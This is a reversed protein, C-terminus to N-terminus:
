ASGSDPMRVARRATAPAQATLVGLLETDAVAYRVLHRTLAEVVPWAAQLRRRAQEILLDIRAIDGSWTAPPEVDGYLYAVPILTPTALISEHDAVARLQPMLRRWPTVLGRHELWLEDAVQGALLGIVFEPVPLAPVPDALQTHGAANPEGEYLPRPDDAYVRVEEVPVGALSYLVAHGAEHVAALEYVQEPTLGDRFRRENAVTGKPVHPRHFLATRGHEDTGTRWPAGVVRIAGNDATTIVPSAAESPVTTIGPSGADAAVSAERHVGGATSSPM